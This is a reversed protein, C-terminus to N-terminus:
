CAEMSRYLIKGASLLNRKQYIHNIEITHNTQLILKLFKVLNSYLTSIKILLHQSKVGFFRLSAFNKIKKSNEFRLFTLISRISSIRQIGANIVIIIYTHSMFFVPQKEQFCGARNNKM